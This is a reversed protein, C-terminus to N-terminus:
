VATANERDGSEIPCDFEDRFEALTAGRYDARAEEFLQELQEYLLDISRQTRFTPSGNPMLESSHLMFEIYASHRREHLLERMSSLNRGNPRFWHVAPFLRNAAKRVPRPMSKSVLRAFSGIGSWDAAITMPVELLSSDGPRRIDSMDMFYPESPFYRYDTGGNGDTFGKMARWSIHPTVSCDVRYGHDLLITAYIENFSWRGARHSIVKVGFRSELLDTMYKVKEAIVDAPFEILYPMGRRGADDIIPPSNWAHLHMGVEAWGRQLADHAFEVFHDSIAM